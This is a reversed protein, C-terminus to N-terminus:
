NIYTKSIKKKNMTTRVFIYPMVSQLIWVTTVGYTNAAIVSYGLAHLKNLVECPPRPTSLGYSEIASLPLQSRLFQLDRNIRQSRNDIYTITDRYAEEAVRCFNTVHRVNPSNRVFIYPM